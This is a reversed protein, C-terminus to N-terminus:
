ILYCYDSSLVLQVNEVHVILQTIFSFEIGLSDMISEHQM